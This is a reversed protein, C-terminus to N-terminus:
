AASRPTSASSRWRWTILVFAVVPSSVTKLAASRGTCLTGSAGFLADLNAASATPSCASCPQLCMYLFLAGTM